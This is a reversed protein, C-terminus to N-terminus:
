RGRWREIAAALLRRRGCVVFPVILFPVLFLNIVRTMAFLFLFGCWLRFGNKSWRRCVSITSALLAALLTLSITESLVVLHFVYVPLSIAFAAGIALGTVRGVTYGLWSWAALSLLYHVCVLLYSAKLTSALIPYVPMRETSMSLYGASDPWMRPIQPFPWSIALAVLCIAGVVAGHRTLNLSDLLRQIM